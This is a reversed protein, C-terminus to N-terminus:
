PAACGFVHIIADRSGVVALAGTADLRVTVPDFVDVSAVETGDLTRHASLRGDAGVSLAFDGSPTLDVSRGQHEPIWIERWAELDRLVYLYDESVAVAVHDAIAVERVPVSGHFGVTRLVVTPDVADRVEIEAGPGGVVVLEGTPAFALDNPEGITDTIEFVAGDDISRVVLPVLDAGTQAHAFRNTESHVAVTRIPVDPTTGGVPWFSGDPDMHSVLGRVDGVIAADGMFDLDTIPTRGEELGYTLASGDVTALLEADLTWFKLTGDEGAAALHGGASIGLTLLSGHDERDNNDVSELEVLEGGADLCGELASPPVTVPPTLVAGPDVAGVGMTVRAGVVPEDIPPVGEPTAHAAACGVLALMAILLIAPTTTANM